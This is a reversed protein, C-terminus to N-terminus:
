VLLNLSSSCALKYQTRPAICATIGAGVIWHCALRLTLGVHGLVGEGEESCFVASAMEGAHSFGSSSDVRHRLATDGGM